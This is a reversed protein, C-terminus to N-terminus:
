RPGHIRTLGLCHLHLPAFALCIQQCIESQNVSFIANYTVSIVYSNIWLPAGGDAESDRTM